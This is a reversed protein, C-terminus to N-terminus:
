TTEVVAKHWNERFIDLQTKISFDSLYSGFQIIAGGILDKEVKVSVVVPRDIKKSLLAAFEWVDHEKFHM